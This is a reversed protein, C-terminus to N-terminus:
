AKQTQRSAAPKRAAPKTDAQKMAPRKRRLPRRKPLAKLPKASEDSLARRVAEAITAAVFDAGTGDETISGRRDGDAEMPVLLGVRLGARRRKLRRVAHRAQALSAANLYAIVVADAEGLALSGFHEPEFAQHGIIAAEAGQIELVQAVMAAAADDIEGRGGICILMRGEGDPLDPGADELDDEGTPEAGNKKAEDDAGNGGEEDEALDELEQV